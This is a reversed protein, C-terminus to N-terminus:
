ANDGEPPWEGSEFADCESCGPCEILGQGYCAACVCLDGGRGDCELMGGGGCHSPFECMCEAM